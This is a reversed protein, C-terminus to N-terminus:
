VQQPQGIAKMRRRRRVVGMGATCMGLLAFSTPEPVVNVNIASQGLLSDGAANYAQLALTYEGTAFGNFATFTPPTLVGPIAPGAFFGFYLNQADQFLPGTVGAADFDIVGLDSEDTGVGPDLDYLLDFNYDEIGGGGAVSIYYGFGWTTGLAHPPLDLGDNVGPGATFTGAGDNSIPPNAFRQFATLGLTITNMGDMITTIAVADNPIGSGGFTAGPLTGFTDFTPSIAAASVPAASSVCLVASLLSATLFRM